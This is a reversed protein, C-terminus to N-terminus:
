NYYHRRILWDIVAGPPNFRVINHLQLDQQGGELLNLIQLLIVVHDMNVHSQRFQNHIQTEFFDVLWNTQVNIGRGDLWTLLQLIRDFFKINVRYPQADILLYKLVHNIYFWEEAPNHLNLIVTRLNEFTVNNSPRNYVRRFARFVEIFSQDDYIHYNTNYPSPNNPTQPSSSM